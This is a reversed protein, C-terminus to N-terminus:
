IERALPLNLLLNQPKLRLRRGGDMALGLYVPKGALDPRMEGADAFTARFLAILSQLRADDVSEGRYLANLISTAEADLGVHWSWREDRIQRVPEIHLAVGLFHMVWRELVRCLADLGPRTFSLDLVTDFRDSREWYLAANEASLVDLTVQGVPTASDVLLRGLSGLGGTRAAVELTEEDALMVAGEAVTVKQTRFLLEAARLTIPDDCDALINRLMAHVLHDVLLAPIAASSSNRVCFTGAAVLRDRFELFVRYNDRADTDGLAALAATSVSARPAARLNAHLAREEVDSDEALQMEPRELYARLFDDTVALNGAADRQLLHFGSSLWFDPLMVASPEVM